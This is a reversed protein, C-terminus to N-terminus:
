GSKHKALLKHKKLQESLWHEVVEFPANDQLADITLRPSLARAGCRKLANDLLKGSLGYERYSRDGLNIILYRHGSLDRDQETLQVWVKRM